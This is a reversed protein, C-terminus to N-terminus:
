SSMAKALWKVCLIQTTPKRARMFARTKWFFSMALPLRRPRKVCRTVLATMCLSFLNAWNTRLRMQLPASRSNPFWKAKAAALIRHISFIKLEKDSMRYPKSYGFDININLGSSEIENALDQETQALQGLRKSLEECLKNIVDEESNRKSSYCGIPENKGLWRIKESVIDEAGVLRNQVKIGM